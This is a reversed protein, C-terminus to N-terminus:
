LFFLFFLFIYMTNVIGTLGAYGFNFSIKLNKNFSFFILGYGIVSLSIFLYYIIFIYINSIM